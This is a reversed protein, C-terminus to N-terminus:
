VLFAIQTATVRLQNILDPPMQIDLQDASQTNREVILDREFQAAGEVLGLFEWDEFMNVIEAKITKPTAVAQGPGFRTGDNALKHRSYKLLIRTNFDYRIYSLTAKRVLDALSSDDAGQANTKRMTRVREIYVVGASSKITSIGDALLQNREGQTRLESTAPASVFRLPVTQLPRAPDAQLERAGVACLNAAFEHPGNTGVCDTCTEHETNRTAAFSSLNSVSDRKAYYLHGDNQRIPGWRDDMETQLVPLTVADNYPHGIDHYQVDGMATVLGTVVPNLLGGSFGTIAATLNVPLEVNPDQRIDIENGVLGKHVYTLDAITDDVGNVAATVQKDADATVAAVFAACIETPTDGDAVAISYTRGALIASYVGAEISSGGFDIEGTAATGAGNDDLAYAWLENIKNEDIFKDIMASLMSGPGFYQRGQSKSTIQYLGVAKTGTSLRQGVLLARHSQLSPGQQSKSTDFETNVGPTLLGGPIMNFSVTM